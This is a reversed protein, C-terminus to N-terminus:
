NTREHQGKLSTILLNSNAPEARHGVTLVCHWWFRETTWDLWATKGDTLWRAPQLAIAKNCHRCLAFIPRHSDSMNDEGLDNVMPNGTQDCGIEPNM